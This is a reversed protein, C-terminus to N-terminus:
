KGGPPLHKVIWETAKKRSDKDAPGDQVFPHHGQALNNETYKVLDHTVPGLLTNLRDSNNVPVVMDNTNHFIATPPFGSAGTEIKSNLPGFFDVLVKIIGPANSAIYTMATAAGLSYGVLGVRAPDADKRKAVYAIADTLTPVHPIANADTPETPDKEYYRPVATVYGKAALDKAMRHIQAGFPPNLGFNGHLVLIVPHKKGDAPGPHITVTYTKKKSQYTEESM